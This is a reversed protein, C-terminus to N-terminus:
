VGPRERKWSMFFFGYVAFVTIALGYWTLAYQLHNDKFTLRTVGGKPWDANGQDKEIEVFFPYASTEPKEYVSAIMNRLDRWYWVNAVIDNDPDFYGKRGARRVLGFVRVEGGVQGKRRQEPSRLADPVFGRNIMVIRGGDTRLPTYVHWGKQKDHTAFYFLEKDHEFRGRVAVRAYEMDEGSQMRRAAEDITVPPAKTRAEVLEILAHKEARRELQWNGLMILVVFSVLMLLSFSIFSPLSM